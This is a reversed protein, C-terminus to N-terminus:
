PSEVPPPDFRIPMRIRGEWKDVFKEVLDSMRRLHERRSILFYLVCSRGNKDRRGSLVECDLCCVQGEVDEGCLDEFIKIIHHTRIEAFRAATLSGDPIQFTLLSGHDIYETLEEICIHSASFKPRSRPEGLRQSLEEKRYCSRFGTDSDFFILSGDGQRKPEALRNRFAHFYTERIRGTRFPEAYFCSSPILLSNEIESVKRRQNDELFKLLDFVTDDYSGWEDERELELYELDRRGTNDDETLMWCVNIKFGGVALHQLLSYKYYDKHDGVFSNKM